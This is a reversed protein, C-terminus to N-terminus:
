SIKIGQQFVDLQFGIEKFIKLQMLTFSKKPSQIAIAKLFQTTFDDAPYFLDRGYQKKHEVKLMMDKRLSGIYCVRM